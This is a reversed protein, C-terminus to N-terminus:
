IISKFSFFAYQSDLEFFTFEIPQSAKRAVEIFGLGGGKSYEDPGQKRQEHYFGKLEDRDLSQIKELKMRLRGVDDKRIKNGGLVFYHDDKYGVAIIGLYLLKDSRTQRQDPMTEASYHIINQSQEVLMSFVKCITPPSAEEAEMKQKLIDGIEVILEQSLPGCFSFFIGQNNLDTKIDSLNGTMKRSRKSCCLQSTNLCTDNGM